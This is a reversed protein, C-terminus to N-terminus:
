LFILILGLACVITHGLVWVRTELLRIQRCIKEADSNDPMEFALDQQKEAHRGNFYSSIILFVGMIVNINSAILNNTMTEIISGM